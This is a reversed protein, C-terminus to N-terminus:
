ATARFGTSFGLSFGGISTASVIRPASSVASTGLVNAATEWVVVAGEVAVFTPGSGRAQGNVRWSWTLTPEPDGRWTGPRVTLLAGVGAAGLIMPRALSVPASVPVSAYVVRSNIRVVGSLGRFSNPTRELDQLNAVRGYFYSTTGDSGTIRFSLDVDSNARDRLLRQGLCDRDVALTFPVEGGDRAGTFYEIRRDLHEVSIARTIDGIAGWSVVTGIDHYGLDPARFAAETAVRPRGPSVAIVDGIYSTM